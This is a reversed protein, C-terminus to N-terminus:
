AVTGTALPGTGQLTVAVTMASGKSGSISVGTNWVTGVYTTDGSEETSALFANTVSGNIDAIAQNLNETADQAVYATFGATWSTDTGIFSKDGLSDFSTTEVTDKQIDITFDTVHNFKVGDIFIKMVDDVFVGTTAM